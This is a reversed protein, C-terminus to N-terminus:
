SDVEAAARATDNGSSYGVLASALLQGHLKYMAKLVSLHAQAFVDIPVKRGEELVHLGSQALGCLQPQVHSADSHVCPTDVESEDVALAVKYAVGNAIAVCASLAHCFFEEASGVRGFVVGYVAGLYHLYVSQELQEAHLFGVRRM